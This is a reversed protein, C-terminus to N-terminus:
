LVRYKYRTLVAEIFKEIHQAQKLSDVVCEYYPSSAPTGSYHVIRNDKSLIKEEVEDFNKILYTGDQRRDEYCDPEDGVLVYFQKEIM